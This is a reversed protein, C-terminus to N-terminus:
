LSIFWILVWLIVIKKSLTLNLSKFKINNLISNIKNKINDKEWTNNNRNIETM